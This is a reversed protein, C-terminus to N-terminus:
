QGTNWLRTGWTKIASLVKRVQDLKSDMKELGRGKPREGRAPKTRLKPQRICARVRLARISDPRGGRSKERARRQAHAKERRRKERDAPSRVSPSFSGGNPTLHNV